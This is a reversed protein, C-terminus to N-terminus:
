GASPRPPSEQLMGGTSLSAATTPSGSSSGPGLRTARRDHLAPCPASSRLAGQGLFRQPLEDSTAKARYLTGRDNRNTVSGSRSSAPLTRRLRSERGVLPSRTAFRPCPCGGTFSSRGVGVFYRRRPAAVVVPGDDSDGEVADVGPVGSVAARRTLVRRGREPGPRVRRCGYPYHDEGPPPAGREGRPGRDRARLAPAPRACELAAPLMRGVGHFPPVRSELSPRSAEPTASNRGSCGEPPAVQSFIVIARPEPAADRRGGPSIGRRPAHSRITLASLVSNASGTPGRSPPLPRPTSRVGRPTRDGSLWPAAGSRHRSRRGVVAYRSPM